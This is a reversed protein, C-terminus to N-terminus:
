SPYKQTDRDNERDHTVFRSPYRTKYFQLLTSETYLFWQANLKKNEQFIKIHMQLKLKSNCQM